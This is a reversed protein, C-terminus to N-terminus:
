FRDGLAASAGPPWDAGVAKGTGIIVKTQVTKQYWVYCYVPIVLVVCLLVSTYSIGCM